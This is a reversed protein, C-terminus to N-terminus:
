RIYRSLHERIEDIEKRNRSLRIFAQASEDSFDPLIFSEEM